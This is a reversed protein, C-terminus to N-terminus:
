TLKANIACPTGISHRTQYRRITFSKKIVKSTEDALTLITKMADHKNM